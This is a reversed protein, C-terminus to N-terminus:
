LDLVLRPTAARGCCALVWPGGPPEDWAAIHKDDHHATGDLVRVRCTGCLGQGCSTQVSFGAEALVEALSKRAEVALVRGCRVLQVEFPTGEAALPRSADFPETHLRSEPRGRTEHAAAAAQMFALPGCVYLHTDDPLSSVLDGVDVRPAGAGQSLHVQVRHAWPSQAMRDRFPLRDISRAFVHLAFTEGRAHLTEAMAMMPTIGIGGALLTHSSAGDALPFRNRPPSARMRTGVVVHDHM